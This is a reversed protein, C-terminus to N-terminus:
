FGSLGSARIGFPGFALLWFLTSDWFGSLGSFDSLETYDLLLSTGFGLFKFFWFESGLYMHLDKFFEKLCIAITVQNKGFFSLASKLACVKPVKRSDGNNLFLIQVCYM